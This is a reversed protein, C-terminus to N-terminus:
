PSPRRPRCGFCVIQKTGPHFKGLGECTWDDMELECSRITEEGMWNWHVHAGLNHIESETVLEHGCEELEIVDRAAIVFEPTAGCIDCTFEGTPEGKRGHAETWAPHTCDLARTVWEEATLEGMDIDTM